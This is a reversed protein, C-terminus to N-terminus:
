ELKYTYTRGDYLETAIGNEVTLYVNYDKASSILRENVSVPMIYERPIDMAATHVNREVLQLTNESIMGFVLVYTYGTDDSGWTEQSLAADSFHLSGESIYWDFREHGNFEGNLYCQMESSGSSGDQAIRYCYRRYIAGGGSFVMDGSVSEMAGNGDDDVSPASSPADSLVDQGWLSYSFDGNEIYEFQYYGDELTVQCNKAHRVAESLKEDPIVYDINNCGARDLQRTIRSFLSRQEELVTSLTSSEKSVSSATDPAGTEKESNQGCSVLLMCVAFILLISLLKRIM